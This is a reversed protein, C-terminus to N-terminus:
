PYHSFVIQAAFLYHNKSQEGNLAQIVPVGIGTQFAFSKCSIFFSPTLTVINGGSNVDKQEQLRNQQTYQGDLEVVWALIWASGINFINKGLGFQYLFQNGPKIANETTSIQTGLASFYLWDIYTRTFTGGVLLSVSGAGTPPTKDLNGTPIFIGTVITAQDIYCSKQKNYFASEFQVLTDAIGSSHNTATKYNVAIPLQLFISSLDTLGYLYAPALTAQHQSAGQFHLAAITFQSEDKDVINAGFSLFQGPQQSGPLAFNGVKPPGQNDSAYTVNTYILLLLWFPSSKM